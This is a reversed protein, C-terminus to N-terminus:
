MSKNFIERIAGADLSCMGGISKNGNLSKLIIEDIDSDDIDYDSLTSPAGINNLFNRFAMIGEEAIDLDSKGETSIDFINVAMQKFKTTHKDVSYDMWNPTLIALGGGHSVRDYVGSLGHEMQHCAWDGGLVHRVRTSLAQSAIFMMTERYEINTLDNILKPGINVMEKIMLELETNLIKIIPNNIDKTNFYTEILHSCIDVISEMTAKEPVTVTYKPDLISFDPSAMPWFATGLKLKEKENSIVAYYNNESSTAANTLIVGLKTRDKLTFDKNKIPEWIDGDYRAGIAIIKSCDIVSTGGVALVLDINKSKCIEIGEYANAIDPNPKIGALEFVEKNNDELVKIVEDYLGTKKVSGKGYTVLIKQAGELETILNSISNEGFYLRTPNATKFIM